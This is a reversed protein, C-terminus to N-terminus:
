LFSSEGKDGDALLVPVNIKPAVYWKQFIKAAKSYPFYEKECPLCDNLGEM